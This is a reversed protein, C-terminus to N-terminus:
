VRWKIGVIKRCTFNRGSMQIQVRNAYINLWRYADDSTIGINSTADSAVRSKIESVLFRKHVATWGAATWAVCVVCLEDFDDITEPLIIGM